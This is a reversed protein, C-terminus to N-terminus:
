SNWDSSCRNVLVLVTVLGVGFALLCFYRTKTFFHKLSCKLNRVYINGRNQRAKRRLGIKLEIEKELIDGM